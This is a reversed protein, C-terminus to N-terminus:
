NTKKLTQRVTEPSLPDSYGLAVMKSALLRLTWRRRGTPPQSCALAILRAEQDGDLKSPRYRSPSRRGLTAPLGAEVFTQRVRYITVSGVAFADRIQEDTWAPGCPGADAKLLIWARALKRAAVKGKSVLQELDRREDATLTVLYKKNM